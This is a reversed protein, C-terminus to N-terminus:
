KAHTKDTKSSSNWLWQIQIYLLSIKKFPSYTGDDGIKSITTSHRRNSRILLSFPDSCANLISLTHPHCSAYLTYMYMSHIIHSRVMLGHEISLNKDSPNTRLFNIRYANIQIPCITTTTTSTM